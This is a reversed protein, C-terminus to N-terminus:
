RGAMVRRSPVREIELENMLFALRGRGTGAWGYLAIRAGQPDANHRRAKALLDSLDTLRGDRGLGAAVKILEELM